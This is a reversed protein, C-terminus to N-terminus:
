SSGKNKFRYYLFTGLGAFMLFLKLAFSSRSKNILKYDLLIKNQITLGYIEVIDWNIYRKKLNPIESKNIKQKYDSDLILLSINNNKKLNFANPNLFKFTEGTARFRIDQYDTLEFVMSPARGKRDEEIRPNEQLVGKLEYFDEFPIATIFLFQYLGIFFLILGFSQGIRKSLKRRKDLISNRFEFGAKKYEKRLRKLLFEYEERHNDKDVKITKRKDKGFIVLLTSTRKSNKIPIEAFGEIEDKKLNITKVLNKQRTGISNIILISFSEAFCMFGLTSFFLGFLLILYQIYEQKISLNILHLGVLFMAIGGIQLLLKLGFPYSLKYEDKNM